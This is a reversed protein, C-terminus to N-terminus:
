AFLVCKLGHETHGRDEERLWKKWVSICKRIEEVSIEEWSM